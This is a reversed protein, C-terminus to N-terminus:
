TSSVQDKRYNHLAAGLGSLVALENPATFVSCHPAPRADALLWAPAPHEKVQAATEFPQSFPIVDSYHREPLTPKFPPRVKLQDPPPRAPCTHVTVDLTPSQFTCRLCVEHYRLQSTPLHSIFPRLIEVKGQEVPLRRLMAPTFTLLPYGGCTVSVTALNDPLDASIQVSDVDTDLTGLVTRRSDSLQITSM